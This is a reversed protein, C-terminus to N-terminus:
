GAPPEAWAAQLDAIVGDDSVQPFRRYWSGVAGFPEPTAVCVVEDAEQRLREVTDPPAVPVAVVVRASGSQRVARVAACMTAGTALGDDVLLVCRGQLRPPPRDARYCRERRALEESERDAIATITASSLGLMRVLEDNLVRAGGSAIAGVALEPQGPAGLKRVILVDLAVGLSRAVEAAVPVGGRPLGLVIMGERGRYASLRHALARAAELRDQFPLSTM